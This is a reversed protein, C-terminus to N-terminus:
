QTSVFAAGGDLQRPPPAYECDGEFPVWGQYLSHYAGDKGRTMLVAKAFPDGAITLNKTKMFDFASQFMDICLEKESGSRFFTVLCKQAPIRLTNTMLEEDFDPIIEDEILLGYRLRHGQTAEFVGGSTAFPVMDIWTRYLDTKNTIIDYSQQTEILHMAPCHEIRYKGINSNADEIRRRDHQMQKLIREEERIAKRLEDEKQKILGATEEADLQDFARVTEALTFRYRRYARAKILIHIDWADYLRYGSTSSKEPSIVGEHEYFRLAEPTIGMLESIMGIKYKKRGMIGGTKSLLWTMPPPASHWTGWAFLPEFRLRQRCM